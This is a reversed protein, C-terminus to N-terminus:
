RYLTKCFKLFGNPALHPHIEIITSCIIRKMPLLSQQGLATGDQVPLLKENKLIRRNDALIKKVLEIQELREVKHQYLYECEPNDKYSLEGTFQKLIKCLIYDM